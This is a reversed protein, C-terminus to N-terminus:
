NPDMRWEALGLIAAILSAADRQYDPHHPGYVRQLTEMSM